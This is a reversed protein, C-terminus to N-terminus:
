KPLDVFESAEKVLKLLSDEDVHNLVMARYIWTYVRIMVTQVIEKPPNEQLALFEYNPGGHYDQKFFQDIEAGDFTWEAEPTGQFVTEDIFLIMWWGNCYFGLSDSINGKIYTNILAQRFTPENELLAEIETCGREFDKLNTERMLMWIEDWNKPDKPIYEKFLNALPHQLRKLLSTNYQQLNLFNPANEQEIRLELYHRFWRNVFAEAVWHVLSGFEKNFSWDRVLYSSEYTVRLSKLGTNFFQLFLVSRLDFGEFLRDVAIKLSHVEEKTLSYGFESFLLPDTIQNRWTSELINKCYENFTIIEEWEKVSYGFISVMSTNKLEGVEMM